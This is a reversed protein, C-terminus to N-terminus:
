RRLQATEQPLTFRHGLLDTEFSKNAMYAM